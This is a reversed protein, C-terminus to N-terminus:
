QFGGLYCSELRQWLRDRETPLKFTQAEEIGRFWTRQRKVLQRTSLCIEDFLGEVGPRVKRGEISRGQLYDLCQAYGVSQLPRVEGYKKLVSESEKLLGAELMLRTREAIRNELEQPERDIVFLDYPAVPQPQHKKELEAVTLGTTRIIELARILRYRDNPGIRTASEPDRAQLETFLKPNDKKELDARLEPPSKPAGWLGHTLAKLYFGTGGVVLARAGRAHIQSLLSEVDRRFDGSTYPEDPNRINVLHHPVRALEEASPKATGIDIERFVILSDANILEIKAGQGKAYEAFELALSSKGTATPGTLIAIKLTSM